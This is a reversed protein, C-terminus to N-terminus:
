RSNTSLSSCQMDGWIHASAEPGTHVLLDIVSVFPEFPGHLQPYPPYDYTMYELEVGSERFADPEIYSRASPGSLYRQAGLKRCVQLLRETKAGTINLESTKLFEVHDIGLLGCIEITLHCDLESLSEWQQSYVGDLFDAYLKFFPASHYSAQIMRRHRAAWDRSNDIRVDNIRTHPSPVNVPVTIWRLGAPTKIRNRNRWDQKTYQIDDHFVFVDSRRIIDFYGRWPLYSPQILALTTM